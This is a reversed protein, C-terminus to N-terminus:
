NSGYSHFTVLRHDSTARFFEIQSYSTHTGPITGSTDSFRWTLRWLSGAAELNYSTRGSLKGHLVAATTARTVATATACSPGAIEYVNNNPQNACNVRASATAPIIFLLAMLAALILRKM